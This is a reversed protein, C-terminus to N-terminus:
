EFSIIKNLHKVNKTCKVALPQTTQKLRYFTGTSGECLKEMKRPDDANIFKFSQIEQRLKSM